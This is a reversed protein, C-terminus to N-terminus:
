FFNGVMDFRGDAPQQGADDTKKQGVGQGKAIPESLLGDVIFQRHGEQKGKGQALHQRCGKGDTGPAAAADESGRDYDTAGHASAHALDKM